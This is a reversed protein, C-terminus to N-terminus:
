TRQPGPSVGLTILEGVCEAVVFSNDRALVRTGALQEFSAPAVLRGGPKLVRSLEALSMSSIAADDIAIGDVSRSALPIDANATFSGVSAADTVQFGTANMALVRSSTISALQHSGKAQVGALLVLKGPLSLDLMAALRVIDDHSQAAVELAHGSPATTSPEDSGNAALSEGFEAVGNRIHYEAQCEPCGLKGSVVLRDSMSHFAAVLWTEEHAVPCRFLDLFEIHM